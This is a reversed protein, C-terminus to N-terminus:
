VTEKIPQGDAGFIKPGIEQKEKKALEELIKDPIVAGVAIRAPHQNSRLVVFDEVKFHCFESMEPLNIIRSWGRTEDLKFSGVLIVPVGDLNIVRNGAYMLGPTETSAKKKKPM